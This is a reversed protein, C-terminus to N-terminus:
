NTGKKCKIIGVRSRVETRIGPFRTCLLKIAGSAIVAYFTNLSRLFINLEFGLNFFMNKEGCARRARNM